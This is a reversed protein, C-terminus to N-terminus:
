LHQRSREPEPRLGRDRIRQDNPQKTQAPRDISRQAYAQLTLILRSLEVPLLHEVILLVRHALCCGWGRDTRWHRFQRNGIDFARLLVIPVRESELDAPEIRVLCDSRHRPAVNRDEKPLPCRRELRRNMPYERM